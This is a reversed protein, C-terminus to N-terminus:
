IERHKGRLVTGAMKAAQEERLLDRQEQGKVTEDAGIREALREKREWIEKVVKLSKESM